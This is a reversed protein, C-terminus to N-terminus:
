APPVASQTLPPSSGAVTLGKTAAIIRQDLARVATAVRALDSAKIREVQPLIRQHGERMYFLHIQTPKGLPHGWIGHAIAHRRNALRDAAKAIARVEKQEKPSAIWRLTITKLMQIKARTGLSHTLLRGKKNDLNLAKWLLREIHHELMAWRAVIEGVGKYHSKPISEPHGFLQAM